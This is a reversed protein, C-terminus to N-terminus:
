GNRLLVEGSPYSRFQLRLTHNGPAVSPIAITFEHATNTTEGTAFPVEAPYGSQVATDIKLRVWMTAGADTKVSAALRVLVCSPQSGGQNFSLPTLNPVPVYTF